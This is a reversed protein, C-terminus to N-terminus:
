QTLVPTRESTTGNVAVPVTETLITDYSTKEVTAVVEKRAVASAIICIAAIWTMYPMLANVGASGSMMFWFHFMLGILAGVAAVYIFPRYLAAVVTAIFTAAILLEGGIVVYGFWSYVSHDVMAQLLNGWFSYAVSPFPNAASVHSNAIAGLWFGKLALGNHWVTANYKEHFGMFWTTSLYALITAPVPLNYPRTFFKRVFDTFGASERIALYGVWLVAATILIWTQFFEFFSPLTNGNWGVIWQLLALVVAVGVISLGVIDYRSKM